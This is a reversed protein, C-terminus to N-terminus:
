LGDLIPLLDNLDSIIETDYKKDANQRIALTRLFIETVVVDCYPISICAFAM